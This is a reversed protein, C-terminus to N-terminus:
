RDKRSPTTKKPKENKAKPKVASTRQEHRATPVSVNRDLHKVHGINLKDRMYWTLDDELVRHGIKGVKKILTSGYFSGVTADVPVWNTMMPVDHNSLLPKRLNTKQYYWLQVFTSM